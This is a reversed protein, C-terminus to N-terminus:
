LMYEQYSPHYVVNGHMTKRRTVCSGLSIVLSVDPLVCLINQLIGSLYERFVDLGDVLLTESVTVVLLMRRLYSQQIYNPIRFLIKYCFVIHFFFPSYNIVISCQHIMLHLLTSYHYSIMLYSGSRIWKHLGSDKCIKWLHSLIKLYFKSFLLSLFKYLAVKFFDTFFQKDTKNLARLFFEWAM